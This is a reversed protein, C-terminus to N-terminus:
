ELYFQQREEEVFNNWAEYLNIKPQTRYYIYGPERAHPHEIQDVLEMNAFWSSNSQRVDDVLIQRDFVQDKKVWMVYSSNVSFTAPLQYQDRYFNLVSAHAYGGGYIMCTQQEVSDLQHYLQAVKQALEEWGHMDAIDQPLDYYQGDEWRLPASYGLHHRMMACYDEMQAVPLIPLAYPLLPLTLAICVALLLWKRRFSKLQAELALAGFAFLITYAGRPYYNKGGFYAIITVTLLLAIGLFRYPKWRAQTFLAWLGLLWLGGWLHHALLQSALFDSLNVNSLQTRSLEEMHQWVPFGHVYQWHLHPSVLLFALVAAAYPYPTALWHRHESWVFALILALAYFAISHKTLFGLALSLGIAWWFHKNQTQVLKVLCYATLLWFFQNFSVPQFLTNSALYVPSFIFALGVFIVSWKQGGLSLVLRCLLYVSLVGILAPFLRVVFVSVGLGNALYALFATLPPIEMYGWSLHQGEVLYLYEDRHFGYNTNTFLHLALKLLLLPFVPTLATAKTKM